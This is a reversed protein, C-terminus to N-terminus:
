FEGCHRELREQDSRRLQLWTFNMQNKIACAMTRQRKKQEYLKRQMSHGARGTKRQM